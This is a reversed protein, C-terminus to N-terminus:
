TPRYSPEALERLTCVVRDNCSDNCHRDGRSNWCCSRRNAAATIGSTTLVRQVDHINVYINYTYIKIQM